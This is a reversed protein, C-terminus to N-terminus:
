NRDSFNRGDTFPLIFYVLSCFTSFNRMLNRLDTFTYSLEEQRVPTIKHVTLPQTVSRRFKKGSFFSL